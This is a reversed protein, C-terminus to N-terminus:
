GCSWQRSLIRPKVNWRTSSHLSQSHAIFIYFWLFIEQNSWGIIPLCCWDAQSVLGRGASYWCASGDAIGWIQFTKMRQNKYSRISTRLYLRDIRAQDPWPQKFSGLVKSEDCLWDTRWCGMQSVWDSLWTQSKPCLLCHWDTIIIIM